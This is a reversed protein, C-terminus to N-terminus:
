KAVPKRGGTLLAFVGPCFRRLLIGAGTCAAADVIGMALIAIVVVAAGATADFCGVRYAAYTCLYFMLPTHACYVFFAQGDLSDAIKFFGPAAAIFGSFKMLLLTSSLQVWMPTHPDPNGDYRSYMVAVACVALALASGWNWFRDLLAMFDVKHLAFFVGLSFYFLADGGMVVPRYGAALIIGFVTLFFTGRRWERMLFELAPSLLVLVFLDRIFWFQYMLTPCHTGQIWASSHDGAFAQLWVRWDASLLLEPKFVIGAKAKLLFFAAANLAAWLVMPLVLTRLRRSVTEGYARPKLFQLYGSFVFFMPVAGYFLGYIVLSHLFGVTADDTWAFGQSLFSGGFFFYPMQVAHCFVVGLIGIYRIARIRRSVDEPVASITNTSTM